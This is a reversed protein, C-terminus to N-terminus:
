SALGNERLTRDVGEWVAPELAFSMHSGDYWVIEPEDWHRWLDRVQDPTVLRDATGAFLFRGEHPVQPTLRTPDIVRLVDGVRDLDLGLSEAYRLQHSAGHQHFTRRADVLPIGPVASVLGEALSAFNATTLGGLSLGFAGVAPADQSRGSRPTARRSRSKPPRPSDPTVRARSGSVDPGPSRDPTATM